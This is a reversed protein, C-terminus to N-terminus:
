YLYNSCLYRSKSSRSSRTSSLTSSPAPSATASRSSRSVRASADSAGKKPSPKPLQSKTARASKNKKNEEGEVNDEDTSVDAVAAATTTESTVDEGDKDDEDDSAAVINLSVAQSSASEEDSEPVTTVTEKQTEVAEKFVDEEEDDDTSPLVKNTPSKYVSSSSTRSMKSPLQDPDLLTNSLTQSFLIRKRTRTPTTSGDTARDEEDSVSGKKNNDEEDVPKNNAPDKALWAGLQKDFKEVTKIVAREKINNILSEALVKLERIHVFNNHTLVLSTLIKILVKTQYGDPCSLVLNCVSIIFIFIFFIFNRIM